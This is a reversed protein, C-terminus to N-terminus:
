LSIRSVGPAPSAVMGQVANERSSAGRRWQAYMGGALGIWLAQSFEIGYPVYYVCQMLVVVALARALDAGQHGVGFMRKLCLFTKFLGVVFLGLGVVGTYFVVEIYANHAGYDIDRAGGGATVVTRALSTGFPQGLFWSKAGGELWMRLLVQWSDLREAATTDLTVGLVFSRRLDELLAAADVVGGLTMGVALAAALAAALGLQRAAGLMAVRSESVVYVAVLGVAASLWVSRHQLVVVTILWAPVAFRWSSSIQRMSLLVLVMMAGQGLLLSVDSDSVRLDEWSNPRIWGAFQGPDVIWRLWVSAAILLLLWLLVRLAGAIQAPDPRLVACYTLVAIFYFFRRFAVVAAAGHEIVGLLLSAFAVIAFAAWPIFARSFEPRILLRVLAAGLLIASLADLPYIATGQASVSVPVFFEDVSIGSLVLVIGFRFSRAAMFAVVSGLGGLVVMTLLLETM